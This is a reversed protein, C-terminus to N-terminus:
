HNLRVAPHCQFSQLLWMMKLIVKDMLCVCYAIFMNRTVTHLSVSCCCWLCIQCRNKELCACINLIQMELVVFLVYACIFCTVFSNLGKPVVM